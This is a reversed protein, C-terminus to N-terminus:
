DRIVRARFEAGLVSQTAKTAERTARQLRELDNVLNAPVGRTGDIWRDLSRRTVGLAHALQEKWHTGYLAAGRRCLDAPTM